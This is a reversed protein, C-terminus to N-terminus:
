GRRGTVYAATLPHQPSAFIQTVSGSEILQGAGNQVWFLAVGDAIRKAQALNHTVILDEVM